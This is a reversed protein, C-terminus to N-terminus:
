VFFHLLKHMNNNIDMHPFYKICIFSTLSSEAARIRSIFASTFLHTKRWLGASVASYLRTRNFCVSLNFGLKLLLM